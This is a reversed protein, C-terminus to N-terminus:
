LKSLPLSRFEEDFVENVVEVLRDVMDQLEEMTVNFAPALMIHDGAFGGFSGTGPYIYVGDLRALGREHLEWAIAKRPDFPHKSAKDKVFELAWFLGMGRIDGVFPHDAFAARLMKELEAGRVRVNEILDDKYIIDQVALAIACSGAHNQFTHGHSFAGSGLQLATAIKEGVLMASIPAYGGALGKGLLLIDPVVGEHQQYAHMSGTRGLGCMVEDLIFLVGHKECVDQMAKLYGAVAPVCGLAAGVVPEVIFGAVRNQGAARIERDLEQALDEVYQAISRGKLDRYEYCPSVFRTNKPLLSEFKERRLTHGSVGLAGLTAGHYSSKRAIFIDREPEPTDKEYAHYQRAMKLAGELAESGSNYAVMHVLDDYTTEILYWALAIGADTTFDLPTAYMVGTKFQKNYAKRVREDKAGICMVGAGGSADLIKRGDDLHVWRGDMGVVHLPKSRVNRNLLYSSPDRPARTRDKAKQFAGPAM